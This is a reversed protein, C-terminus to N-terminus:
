SAQTTRNQLAPNWEEQFPEQRKIIAFARGVLKNRIINISTMKPTDKAVRRAHYNRLEKDHMSASWAATTLLAKAVKNGMKSIREKGNKGSGSSKPFPAIGCYCAFQKPGPFATFNRTLIIFMLATEKGIGKISQLLEMNKVVSPMSILIANIAQDIAEIAKRMEIIPKRANRATAAVVKNGMEKAEKPTATLQKICKLFLVRQNFLAHLEQLKESPFEWKQFKDIFRCAYQAIMRADIPDSKGRAHGSGKQINIPNEMWTQLDKSVSFQLFPTCYLGTHELCFATENLSLGKIKSIKGVLAGIAALTNEIEFEAIIVRSSNCVAFNLKAKSVDVGVFHNFQVLM